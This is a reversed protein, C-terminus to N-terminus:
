PQEVCVHVGKGLEGAIGAQAAVAKRLGVHEVLGVEFRQQPGVQLPIRAGLQATADLYRVDCGVTASADADGIGVPGTPAFVGDFGVVYQAAVAGVANAAGSDTGAHGIEPEVLAPQYDVYGGRRVEVLPLADM